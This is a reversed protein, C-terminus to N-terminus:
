PLPECVHFECLLELPNWYRPMETPTSANPQVTRRAPSGPGRRTGVSFDARYFMLIASTSPDGAAVVPKVPRVMPARECLQVRRLTGIETRRERPFSVESPQDHLLEFDDIQAICHGFCPATM